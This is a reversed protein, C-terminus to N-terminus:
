PSSSSECNKASGPINVLTSISTLPKIQGPSLIEPAKSIDWRSRIMNQNRACKCDIKGRTWKHVLVSVLNLDHLKFISSLKKPPRHWTNQYIWLLKAVSIMSIIQLSKPIMPKSEQSAPSLINQSQIDIGHRSIGQSLDGPCWCAHCQCYLIHLMHPQEMPFKTKM